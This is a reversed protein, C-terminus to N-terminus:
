EPRAFGAFREHVTVGSGGLMAAKRDLLRLAKDSLSGYVDIQRLTILDALKRFEANGIEMHLELSASDPHVAVVTMLGEEEDLHFGYGVLQPERSEIVEVLRRIGAKLEDLSGEHIDSRDIYVILEPADPKPDGGMPGIYSVMADTTVSRSPRLACAATSTRQKGSGKLSVRVPNTLDYRHVVSCALARM